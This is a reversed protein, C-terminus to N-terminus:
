QCVQKPLWLISAWVYDAISQVTSQVDSSLYSNDQTRYQAFQEKEQTKQM